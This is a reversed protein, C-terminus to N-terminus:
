AVGAVTAAADDGADLGSGPLPNLDLGDYPTFDADNHRLKILIWDELVSQLEDRCAELTDANAWVGQCGPIRAFFGEGDALLEYTARRMAARIYDILM